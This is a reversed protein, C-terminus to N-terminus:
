VKLHGVAVEVQHPHAAAAVEVLQRHRAVVVAVALPLHAVVEGGVMRHPVEAVAVQRHAAVGRFASAVVVVLIGQSAVELYADHGFSQKRKLKVGRGRLTHEFHLYAEQSSSAAPCAALSAALSAAPSAALSAALSAELSAEVCSSAVLCAVVQHAEPCAVELYVYPHLVVALSAVVRPM